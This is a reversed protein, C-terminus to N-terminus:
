GSVRTFEEHRALVWFPHKPDGTLRVVTDQTFGVENGAPISVNVTFAWGGDSISPDIAGEITRGRSVADDSTDQLGYAQRVLAPATSPDITPQQSYITIASSIRSYLEPTMNMVLKLEDLTQFPAQRPIYSYDADEYDTSKAGHLRKFPSDERWDLIKDALSDVDDPSVGAANLLAVLNSRDTHNIDIKGYEDEIRVTARFGDFVFDQPIGDVRWRQELRRDLLALVARNMAADAVGELRGRDLSTHATRMSVLSDTLLAAAILSLIAAAWLVIVLAFGKAATKAM